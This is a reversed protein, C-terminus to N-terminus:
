CLQTFQSNQYLLAVVFLLARRPPLTSYSIPKGPPVLPLSGVQWNLLCLLSPNSGQILFVQQHLAYCGMWYEQRPFGMFLPAQHAVTWPTVYLQVHSFCSLLVFLTVSLVGEVTVSNRFTVELACLVPTCVPSVVTLQMPYLCRQARVSSAIM